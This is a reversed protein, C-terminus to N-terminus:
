GVEMWAAFSACAAEWGVWPQPQSSTGVLYAGGVVAAPEGGPDKHGAESYALVAALSLDMHGAGQCAEVEEPTLDMHEVVQCAVGQLSGLTVYADHDMWDHLHDMYDGVQCGAVVLTVPCRSEQVQMLFAAYSWPAVVSMLHQLGIGAIGCWYWDGPDMCDVGLYVEGWSRQDRGALRQVGRPQPHGSGGPSGVCAASYVGPGGQCCPWYFLM